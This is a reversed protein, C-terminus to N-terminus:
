WVHPLLRFKVRRMYEEYGKLGRLLVEEENKIRYALIVPLLAMPILGYFSGLVLPSFLYLIIAALYMPHRVFSYLGTDILRQDEQIEIVRSAYSNQRMAMMFMAYGSVMLVTSVAVLWNPVDSWDYRYDLGPVAFAIVFFVPSIVAYRKQRKEKERLRMRKELLLPDKILLYSLAFLMPILLAALYLWANWYRLSGASVFLVAAVLVAGIFFMTAAMATLRGRSLPPGPKSEEM